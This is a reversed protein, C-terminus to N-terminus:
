THFQIHCQCVDKHEKHCNLPDFNVVSESYVWACHDCLNSNSCFSVFLSIIPM